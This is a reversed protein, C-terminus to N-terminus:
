WPNEQFEFTVPKLQINWRPYRCCIGIIFSHRLQDNKLNFVARGCLWLGGKSQLGHTAKMLNLNTGSIYILYKFFGNFVAQQLSQESILFSHCGNALIEAGLRDLRNLWEENRTPICGTYMLLVSEATAINYCIVYCSLVDPDWLGAWVWQVQQPTDQDMFWQEDQLHHGLLWGEAVEATEDIRLVKSAMTTCPRLCLPM